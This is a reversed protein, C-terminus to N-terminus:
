TTANSFVENLDTLEQQQFSGEPIGNKNPIIKTLLNMDFTVLCMGHPIPWLGFLHCYTLLLKKFISAEVLSGKAGAIFTETM